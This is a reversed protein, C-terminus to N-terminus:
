DFLGDAGDEGRELRPQEIEARVEGRRQIGSMLGFDLADGCIMDCLCLSPNIFNVRGVRRDGVENQGAARFEGGAQVQGAGDAAPGLARHNM